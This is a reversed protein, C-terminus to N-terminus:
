PVPLVTAFHVPDGAALRREADRGVQQIAQHELELTILRDETLREKGRDDQQQITGISISLDSLICVISAHSLSGELKAFRL